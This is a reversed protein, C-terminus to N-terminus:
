LENPLEKSDYPYQDGRWKFCLIRSGDPRQIFYRSEYIGNPYQEFTFFHSAPAATVVSTAKEHHPGGLFMVAFRQPASIRMTPTVPPM